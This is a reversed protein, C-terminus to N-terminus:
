QNYSDELCLKNVQVLITYIFYGQTFINLHIAILILEAWCSHINKTSHERKVIIIMQTSLLTIMKM